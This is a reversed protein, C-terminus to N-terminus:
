LGFLKLIAEAVTQGAAGENLLQDASTGLLGALAVKLVIRVKKLDLTPWQMTKRETLNSTLASIIRM